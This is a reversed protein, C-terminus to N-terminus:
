QGIAKFGVLFEAIRRANVGLDSQGVRSVSRVDIVSGGASGRIRVVMDDKFGFWFTTDTAEIRGAPADAAVVELGMEEVVTLARDFADAENMQSVLTKIFPYAATQKDALTAADYDLPNSQDGRLPVVAVFEPPDETDTSINHIAPVSRAMNFQGGMLALILVSIGLGVYLSPKESALGRRSAVVLAIIGLFLGAAALLAGLGLLLFSTSLPLVGVRYGLAGLPLLIVAVVSGILLTRAWWTNAKQAM